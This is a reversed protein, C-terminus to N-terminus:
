SLVFTEKQNINSPRIARAISIVNSFPSSILRTVKQVAIRLFADPEASYSALTPDIM